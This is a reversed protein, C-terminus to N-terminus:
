KNLCYIKRKFNEIFRNTFEREVIMDFVASNTFMLRLIQFVKLKLTGYFSMRSSSSIRFFKFKVITSKM